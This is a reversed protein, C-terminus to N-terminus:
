FNLFLHIVLKDLKTGPLYEYVGLYERAKKTSVLYQFILQTTSAIYIYLLIGTELTCMIPLSMLPVVFM